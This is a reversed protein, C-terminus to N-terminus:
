ALCADLSGMPYCTLASGPTCNIIEVGRPRYQLFQRKMQEFRHPKTNKLPAPHEGFYHTGGLDYGLLLISTAGLKVAVHLAWLGSNSGMPLGELRETDIGDVPLACFRRGAFEPRHHKWWARDASVLALAWPALRYADSVAVTPLERVREVQELTLSPGTAIVAFRM